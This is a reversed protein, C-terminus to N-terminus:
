LFHNSSTKSHFTNITLGPQINQTQTTQAPTYSLTKLVPQRPQTTTQFQTEPEVQLANTGNTNSSGQQPSNHPTTQTSYQLPLPPPDYNRPSPQQTQFQQTVTTNSLKSTNDQNQDNTTNKTVNRLVNSDNTVTFSQPNNTTTHSLESVNQVTLTDSSDPLNRITTTYQQQDPVINLQQPEQNKFIQTNNDPNLQSIDQDYEEFM